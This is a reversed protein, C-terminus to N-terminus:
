AAYDNSPFFGSRVCDRRRSPVRGRFEAWLALACVLGHRQPALEARTQNVYFLRRVDGSAALFPATMAAPEAESREAAPVVACDASM